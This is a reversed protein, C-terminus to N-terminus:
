GITVEEFQKCVSLANRMRKLHQAPFAASWRLETEPEGCGAWSTCFLKAVMRHLESEYPLTGDDCFVRMISCVTKMLMEPFNWKKNVM